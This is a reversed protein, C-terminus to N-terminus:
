DPVALFSAPRACPSSSSISAEEEGWFSRQADQLLDLSAAHLHPDILDSSPFREYLFSDFRQDLIFDLTHDEADGDQHQPDPELASRAVLQDRGSTVAAGDL